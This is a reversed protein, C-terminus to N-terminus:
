AYVLLPNKLATEPNGDPAWVTERRAMLNQAMYVGGQAWRALGKDWRDEEWIRLEDVRTTDRADVKPHGGIFVFGKNSASDVMSAYALINSSVSLPFFM